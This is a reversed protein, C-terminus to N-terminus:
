HNRLNKSLKAEFNLVLYVSGSFLSKVSFSKGARPSLFNKTRFIIFSQESLASM